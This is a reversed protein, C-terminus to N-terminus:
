QPAKRHHGLVYAMSKGASLTTVSGGEYLDVSEAVKLLDPLLVVGRRHRATMAQLRRMLVDAFLDIRQVELVLRELLQQGQDVQEQVCFRTLWRVLGIPPHLPAMFLSRPHSSGCWYM